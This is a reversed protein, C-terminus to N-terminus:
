GLPVVSYGKLTINVTPLAPDSTKLKLTKKATKNALRAKFAFPIDVSGGPQIVIASAGATSSFNKDKRLLSSFANIQRPVSDFNQVRITGAATGGMTVRGFDLTTPTVFLGSGSGVGGGPPPAPASVVNAQLVIAIEPNLMDNTTLVINRLKPGLSLATFTFPLSVTTAPVITLTDQGFREGSVGNLFGTDFGDGLQSYFAPINLNAPGFSSIGVTYAYPTTTGKSQGLTVDGFNVLPPSALQISAAANNVDMVELIGAGPFTTGFRKMVATYSGPQLYLRVAADRDNGPRAGVDVIWPLQDTFWDDNEALLTPGSYVAVTPDLMTNLDTFADSGNQDGLSRGRARVVIHSPGPGKVEFEGSIEEHGVDITSINSLVFAKSSSGLEDLIFAEIQGFGPTGDENELTAAYSGPALYTVIAAESDDTPQLGTAAIEAEQTDKWDNNQAVVLPSVASQLLTLKPNGALTGLGLGSLSPGRGRILVKKMVGPNRLVVVPTGAANPVTKDILNQQIVLGATLATEPSTGAMGLTSLSAVQRGKTQTAFWTASSPASLNITLANHAAKPDGVPVGTPRGDYLVDPNSFHPIPGLPSLLTQSMITEFLEGSNGKYVHGYSFTPDLGTGTQEDPGAGIPNNGRDHACGQNHGVEHALVYVGLCDALTIGFAAEAFSDLSTRIFAIGCVDPVVPATILHVFDAGFTERFEHVYDLVDPIPDLQTPTNPGFDALQYLDKASGDLDGVTPTIPSEPYPSNFIHVLRLRHNVGSNLYATNADFVEMHILARMLEAANTFGDIQGGAGSIFGAVRVLAANTYGVLIDMTEGGTGPPPSDLHLDGRVGPLLHSGGIGDHAGVSASVAALGGTVPLPATVGPPLLSPESACGEFQTADIQMVEVGGDASGRLMFLGHEPSRVRGAVASGEVSLTVDSLSDGVVQGALIFSGTSNMQLRSFQAEVSADSFLDIQLTRGTAPSYDLLSQPALESRRSRMVFRRAADRLNPDQIAQSAYGANAPQGDTFLEGTPPLAPKPGAAQAQQLTPKSGPGAAAEDGPWRRQNQASFEELLVGDSDYFVTFVEGTSDLRVQEGTLTQQRGNLEAPETWRFVVTRPADTRLLALFDEFTVPGSQAPEAEAPQAGVKTPDYFLCACAIAFLVLARRRGGFPSNESQFGRIM